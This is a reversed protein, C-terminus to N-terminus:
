FSVWCPLQREALRACFREAEERNAFGAVRLRFIPPAAEREVRLIVPTRGAALDPLRTAFGAWHRQAEAESGAAAIQVRPGSPTAPAPRTASPEPLTALIIPPAPADPPAAASPAPEAPVPPSQGAQPRTPM